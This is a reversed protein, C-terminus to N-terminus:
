AIRKLYGGPNFTLFFKEKSEDIVFRRNEELFEDVAEMPGPGFEPAVPYGNLQTDEVILYSGPTVLTSYLRLEQLVHDKQHDSDLIVMVSGDGVEARVWEVVEPSTSSGIVYEIRPHHPLNDRRVLDITILRGHDLLDCISALFLASGGSATGCEVIVDPRLEYLIEQYIWLDFPCKLTQVGMWYTNTWTKGAFGSLFFLWHFGDVVPNRRLRRLYSKLLRQHM